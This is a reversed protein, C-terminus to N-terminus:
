PNPTTTPPILSYDPTPNLIEGIIATGTPTVINFIRNILGTGNTNNIGIVGNDWYATSISTGTAAIVEKAAANLAAVYNAVYNINNKFFASYEGLYIPVGYRSVKTLQSTMYSIGYQGTIDWTNTDDPQGSLTFNSPDYYHVSLSLRDATTDKPMYFVGEDFGAVTMDIDTNYGPVVLVRDDNADNGTGRVADVFEQNLETINAYANAFQADTLDERTYAGSIMVENMDEFILAQNYSAFKTAIEKWMNSFKNVVANFATSGNQLSIDIWKGIVGEGGDNHINIVVYLGTDLARDVVAQIRNLYDDNIDGQANVM